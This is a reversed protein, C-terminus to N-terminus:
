GGKKLKGNGKVRVRLRRARFIGVFGLDGVDVDRGGILGYM